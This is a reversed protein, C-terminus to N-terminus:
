ITELENLINIILRKKVGKFQSLKYILHVMIQPSLLWDVVINMQTQRNEWFANDLAHKALAAKNWKIFLKLHEYAVKDELDLWMDLFPSPDDVAQSFACIYTESYSLDEPKNETLFYKWLAFFYEQIKKQEETDWLEWNGYKLKSFLTETDTLAFTAIAQIEFLRPLFHRFDDEDGWTTLAKFSYKNLDEDSLEHLPKSYLLALDDASICGCTCAEIKERLKYKSFCSYLNAISIQLEQKYKDHLDQINSM